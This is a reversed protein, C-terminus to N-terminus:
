IRRSPWIVFGPMLNGAESDMKFKQVLHVLLKDSSAKELRKLIFGGDDPIEVEMPKADPIDDLLVVSVGPRPFKADNWIRQEGTDFILRLFHYGQDIGYEARQLEM